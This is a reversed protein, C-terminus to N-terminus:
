WNFTMLYILVQRNSSAAYMKYYTKNKHCKQREWGEVIDVAVHDVDSGMHHWSGVSDLLYLVLHLQNMDNPNFTHLAEGLGPTILM